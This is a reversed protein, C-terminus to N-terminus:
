ATVAAAVENKVPVQRREVTDPWLLDSRALELRQEIRALDAFDDQRGIRRNFALGGRVEQAVARRRALYLRAADCVTHWDTAFQLVDVAAREGVCQRSPMRDSERWDLTILYEPDDIARVRGALKLSTPTCGDCDATAKM